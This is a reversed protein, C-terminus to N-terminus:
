LFMGSDMVVFNGDNRYCLDCVLAIFFRYEGVLGM